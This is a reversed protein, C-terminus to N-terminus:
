AEKKFVIKIMDAFLEEANYDISQVIIFVPNRDDLLEIGIRNVQKKNENGSYTRAINKINSYQITHTKIMGRYILQNEELVLLPKKSFLERGFLILMITNLVLIVIFPLYELFTNNGSDFIYYITVAYIVISSVILWLGNKSYYEKKMRIVM